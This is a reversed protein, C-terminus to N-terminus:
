IYHEEEGLQFHGTLICVWAKEEKKKEEKRGERM